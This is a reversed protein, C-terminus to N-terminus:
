SPIRAYRWSGYGSFIVLLIWPSLIAAAIGEIALLLMTAQLGYFVGVIVIGQITAVAINRSREVELGIPIALLAFLLVTLPEALRSHFLAQYRTTTRGSHSLAAIYERLRLLSLNAADAGLLALEGTQGLELVTEAQLVTEPAATPDGLDFTRITADQLRWLQDEGIQATEAEISRLLHGARDREYISIGQLTRASRDASEVKYLFDGKHYWFSGSSQTLEAGDVNEEIRQFEKVADLVITENIVLTVASLLMAAFLVPVTVRYPSIGGAKIAILEQARAAMGLCLFAAGFSAVPILYPLYYSPLRLFLYTAVGLIGDRYDLVDDFNLMLEIVVIILNSAVLIAFYLFLYNALFHRSLIRM